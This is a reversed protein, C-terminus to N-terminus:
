KKNFLEDWYELYMEKQKETIKRNQFQIYIYERLFEEFEIERKPLIKNKYINQARLLFDHFEKRNQKDQKKLEEYGAYDEKIAQKLYAIYNKPNSINTYKIQAEIYEFEYKNKIEWFYSELAKTRYQEPILGLFAQVKASEIKQEKKQEIKKIVPKKKKIFKIHTYKSGSKILEYDIYFDIFPNENIEKKAPELVRRKLDFIRKYKDEIGFIKRLEELKMLPIDVNKYDELIEYLDITYKGRFQKELALNIKAFPEEKSIMVERVRFPISYRIIIENTEIDTIFEINDLLSAIGEIRKSKKLLNYEVKVNEMERILFKYYKNNKDQESTDICMKKLFNLKVSFWHENQNEKLIEKAIFLFGNYFKKQLPNLDGSIAIVGSPKEFIKVKKPMYLKNDMIKEM